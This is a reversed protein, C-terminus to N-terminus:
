KKDEKPIYARHFEEIFGGHRSSSMAAPLCEIINFLYVAPSVLTFFLLIM